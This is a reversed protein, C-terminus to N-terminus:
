RCIEGWYWEYKELDEEEEEDEDNKETKKLCGFIKEEIRDKKNNNEDDNSHKGEKISDPSKFASEFEFLTQHEQLMYENDVINNNNNNNDSGKYKKIEKPSHPLLDPRMTLKNFNNIINNNNNIKTNSASDCLKIPIPKTKMKLPLVSNLNLYADTFLKM